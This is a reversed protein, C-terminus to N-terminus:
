KLKQKEKEITRELEIPILYAIRKYLELHKEKFQLFRKHEKENILKRIKILREEIEKNTYSVYPINPHYFFSEEQLLPDSFDPIIYSNGNYFFNNDMIYSYHYNYIDIIHYTDKEIYGIVLHNNRYDFNEEITQIEEASQKLICQIKDCSIGKLRLLDAMFSNVNSCCGYGAITYIGEMKANRKTFFDVNRSTLEKKISTATIDHFKNTYSLLGNPILYLGVLLCLTLPDKDFESMEIEKLLEELLKNYLQKLENLVPLSERYMEYIESLSPTQKNEIYITSLSIKNGTAITAIINPNLKLKKAIKVKPLQSPKSIIELQNKIIIQKIEQRSLVRHEQDFQIVEDLSMNKLKKM